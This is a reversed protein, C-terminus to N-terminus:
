AYLPIYKTAGNVTVELWSDVTGTDGPTNGVEGTFNLNVISGNNDIVMTSNDSALSGVFSSTVSGNVTANGTLSLGGASIVGDNNFVFDTSSGTSNYIKFTAKGPAVNNSVGATTEFVLTVNERNATGDFAQGVIELTRDGAQYTLPSDVTGRHKVAKIDSINDGNQYTNVSIAVGAGGSRKLVLQGNQFTGAENDAGINLPGSSAVNISNGEIQLDSAPTFITRTTIKYNIADVILSSDDSFVSGTLDGDVNGTLNGVFDGSFRNNSASYAVSSDGAILDSSIATATLLGYVNLGNFFGNRWRYNTSGVDFAIDQDPLIAGSFAGGVNIIDGGAGDGLNINGTATITGAININGSGTINNGNLDLDGGLQPSTDDVIDNIGTVVTGGATSGDGVFLRKTDTTYILEGQEPTVTLREANTGRRLKLAM